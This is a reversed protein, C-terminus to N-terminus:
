NTNAYPEEFYEVLDKAFVLSCWVFAVYAPHQVGQYWDYGLSLCCLGTLTLMFPKLM